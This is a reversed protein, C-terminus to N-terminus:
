GTCLSQIDVQGIAGTGFESRNGLLSKRYANVSQLARSPEANQGGGIELKKKLVQVVMTITGYGECRNSQMIM